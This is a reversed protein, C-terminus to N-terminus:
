PQHITPARAINAQQTNHCLPCTGVTLLTAHPSHQQFLGQSTPQPFTQNEPQHTKM